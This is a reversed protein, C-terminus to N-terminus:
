GVAVRPTPARAVTLRAYDRGVSWALALWAVVIVANVAACGRPHLAFCTTNIFVLVASLVDGVRV